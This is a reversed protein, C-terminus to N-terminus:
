SLCCFFRNKLFWSIQMQSIQFWFLFYIFFNNLNCSHSLHYIFLEWSVIVCQLIDLFINLFLTKITLLLTGVPFFITETLLLLLLGKNDSTVLVLSIFNHFYQLQSIYLWLKLYSMIVSFYLVVKVNKSESMWVITGLFYLGGQTLLTM